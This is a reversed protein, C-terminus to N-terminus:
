TRPPQHKKLRALSVLRTALLAVELLGRLSHVYSLVAGCFALAGPMASLKSSFMIIYFGIGPGQCLSGSVSSALAHALISQGAQHLM